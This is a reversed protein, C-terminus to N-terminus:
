FRSHILEGQSEKKFSIRQPQVNPTFHRPKDLHVKNPFQSDSVGPSPTSRERVNNLKLGENLTKITPIIFISALDVVENTFHEFINRIMRIAVM